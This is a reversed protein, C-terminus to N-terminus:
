VLEMKFFSVTFHITTFSFQLKRSTRSAYITKLDTFRSQQIFGQLRHILINEFM